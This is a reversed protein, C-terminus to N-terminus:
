YEEKASKRETDFTVNINSIEEKTEENSGENGRKRETDFM